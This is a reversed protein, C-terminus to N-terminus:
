PLDLPLEVLFRAGGDASESITLRGGHLRCHEAAIALGLGTGPAATSRSADGRHFREFVLEREEPAIGPGADDVAIELADPTGAVRVRTAGNAYHDANDLLNTLVQDIRRPDFRAIPPASSDVVVPVAARGTRRLVGRVFAAPDASETVLTTSGANFRSIELLDLVLREFRHTQRRLIDLASRANDDVRRDLVDIAARIATLPTRLEHSVDSAFRAERDIREQLADVMDNFSHSFPALDPDGVTLRTDRNGAAISVAAASMTEIPRLVRRSAFRGLLAGLLTTIAAVVALITALTRLTSRLETLPFAEYYTGVDPGIPVAVVVVPEGAIMVRQRETRPDTLTRMDVPITDRGVDISAAFWRDGLRLVPRSGSVSSLTALIPAPDATRDQLFRAVTHANAVAQQTALTERKSLLYRRTLGYTMLALSVSLMLALAAFAVSTRARLGARHRIRAEDAM